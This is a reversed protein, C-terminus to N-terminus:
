AAFFLALNVLYIATCVICFNRMKIYSIYALYLTGVLSLTAMIFIIRNFQTQSLVIILLYFCIGILSNSVGIMKGYGSTFAKTCSMRDNIDCIPKYGKQKARSEVVYAYISLLLGIFAIQILM